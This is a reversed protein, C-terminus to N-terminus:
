GLKRYKFDFLNWLATVADNVKEALEREYAESERSLWARSINRTVTLKSDTHFANVQCHDIVMVTVGANFTTPARGGEYPGKSYAKLMTTM